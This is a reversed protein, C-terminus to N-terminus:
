IQAMKYRFKIHLKIREEQELEFDCELMLLDKYKEHQHFMLIVSNDHEIEFTCKYTEAETICLNFLRVLMM